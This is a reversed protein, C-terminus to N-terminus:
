KKFYDLILRQAKSDNKIRDEENGEDGHKASIRTKYILSLVEALRQKELKQM